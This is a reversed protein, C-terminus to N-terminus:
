LCYCFWPMMFFEDVFENITLKFFVGTNTFSDGVAQFPIDSSLELYINQLDM